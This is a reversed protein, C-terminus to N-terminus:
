RIRADHGHGDLLQRSVQYTLISRNNTEFTITSVFDVPNILPIGGPDTANTSM